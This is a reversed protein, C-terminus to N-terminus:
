RTAALAPARWVDIVIRHQRPGVVAADDAYNQDVQAAEAASPKANTCSTGPGHGSMLESCPGSYDDLLGLIHGTEHAAIRTMDYGEDVAEQGLDVEGKSGGPVIPGLTTEPWGSTAVYSFNASGPSTAPQLHVNHEAANWNAVGQTIAAAWQGARSADYTLTVVSSTAKPAPHASAVGSTVGLVAPILAAMATIRKIM